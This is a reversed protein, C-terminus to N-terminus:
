ADQYSFNNFIETFPSVEHSSGLIKRCAYTKGQYVANLLDCSEDTIFCIVPKWILAVLIAVLTTAHTVLNTQSNLM